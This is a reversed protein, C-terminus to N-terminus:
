KVTIKASTGFQKFDSYTARTTARGLQTARGTLQIPGDYLEVMRSPLWVGLKEDRRYTVEIDAVSELDTLDMSQVGGSQALAERGGTPTNPNVAPRQQPATIVPASKKDAFNQLHLKTRVVTGDEPVIWLTGTTPVDKGARTMILTPSKTEKFDIEVVSIGDIKKTDKRTFTFRSLSAPQFFFLTATPVNFNRTIPGLNFRASEAAIKAAQNTDITDSALLTELRNRRDTITKGDVEVVDRYGMWGGGPVKVIAFEAVLPIPRSPRAAGEFSLSQTYKEVAVFLSAKEAYTSVYQAMKQLVPDLAPDPAQAYVTSALLLSLAVTIRSM